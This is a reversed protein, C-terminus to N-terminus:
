QVDDSIMFIAPRSDFDIIGSFAVHHAWRFCALERTLEQRLRQLFLGYDNSRSVTFNLFQFESKMGYFLHVSVRLPGLRLLMTEVPTVTWM